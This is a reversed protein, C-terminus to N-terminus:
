PVRGLRYVVSGSANNGMVYLEGQTDRGFATIVLRNGDNNM